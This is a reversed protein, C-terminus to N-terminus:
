FTDVKVPIPLFSPVQGLSDAYHVFEWYARRTLEVRPEADQHCKSPLKFYDTQLKVAALQQARINANLILQVSKCHPVVADLQLTKERGDRHRKGETPRRPRASSQLPGADSPDPCATEASELRSDGPCHVEGGEPAPTAPLLCLENECGPVGELDMSPAMEVHVARQSHEEQSKNCAEGFTAANGSGDSSVSSLTLAPGM